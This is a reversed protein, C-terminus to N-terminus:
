LEFAAKVIANKAATLYCKAFWKTRTEKGKKGQKKKKQPITWWM